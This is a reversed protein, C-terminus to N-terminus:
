NVVLLVPALPLPQHQPTHQQWSLLRLEAEAPGAPGNGTGAIRFSQWASPLCM